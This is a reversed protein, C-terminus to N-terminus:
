FQSFFHLLIRKFVLFFIESPESIGEDHLPMITFFFRPFKKVANKSVLLVFSLFVDRPLPLSNNEIFIKRIDCVFVIFLCCSLFKIFIFFVVSFHFSQSVKSQRKTAM